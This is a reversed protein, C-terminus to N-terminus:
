CTYITPADGYVIFNDLFVQMFEGIYEWFAKTIAQQFTTPANCLGFAIVM